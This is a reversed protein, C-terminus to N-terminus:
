SLYHNRYIVSSLACYKNSNATTFVQGGRCIHPDRTSIRAETWTCPRILSAAAITFPRCITFGDVEVAFSYFLEASVLLSSCFQTM